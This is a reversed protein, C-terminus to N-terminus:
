EHYTSNVPLQRTYHKRVFTLKIFDKDIKNPINGKFRHYAFKRLELQYIDEMKLINLAKSITSVNFFKKAFTITKILKNLRTSLAGLENKLQVCTLIGYQIKSYIFFYVFTIM